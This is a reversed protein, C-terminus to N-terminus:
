SSASLLEGTVSQANEQATVRSTHLAERVIGAGQNPVLLAGAVRGVAVAVTPPAPVWALGHESTVVAAVIKM